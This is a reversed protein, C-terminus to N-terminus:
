RWAATQVFRVRKSKHKMWAVRELEDCSRKKAVMFHLSAVDEDRCASTGSGQGVATYRSIYKKMSSWGCAGADFGPGRGSWSKM